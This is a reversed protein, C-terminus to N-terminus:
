VLRPFKMAALNNYQWDSHDNEGREEKESKRKKKRTKRKKGQIKRRKKEAAKSEMSSKKREDKKRESKGKERREKSTSNRLDLKPIQPLTHPPAWDFDPSLQSQAPESFPSLRRGITKHSPFYKERIM